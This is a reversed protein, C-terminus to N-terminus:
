VKEATSEEVKPRYVGVEVLGHTICKVCHKAGPFKPLYVTRCKRCRYPLFRRFGWFLGFFLTLSIASVWIVIEQSILQCLNLVMMVLMIVAMVFFAIAIAKCTRDWEPRRQFQNM